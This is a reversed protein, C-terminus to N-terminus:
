VCPLPKMPSLTSAYVECHPHVNCVANTVESLLIHSNAYSGKARKTQKAEHQAKSRTHGLPGPHAQGARARLKSSCYSAARVYVM